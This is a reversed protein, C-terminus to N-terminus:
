QQWRLKITRLTRKADRATRSLRLRCKPGLPEFRIKNERRQSESRLKIAVRIWAAKIHAELDSISRVIKFHLWFETQSKHWDLNAHWLQASAAFIFMMTLLLGQRGSIRSPMQRVSAMSTMIGASRARFRCIYVGRCQHLFMQPSWTEIQKRACIAAHSTMNNM